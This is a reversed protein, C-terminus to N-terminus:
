EGNVFVIKAVHTSPDTFGSYLSNAATFVLYVGSASKRGTYDRGDWRAQGGLAKTEYVLRGNVDTIKVTADRPLGKIFVYGDYDPRVPNPYVEVESKHVTGGETADSQFSVIGKSTAIFVEGSEHDIAIDIINNDPLESNDKTFTYVKDKGDDSMLYLNSNTGVWKRNADDVAITQVSETELLYAGFGDDGVVIRRTGQCDSSFVDSGCEFIVVGDTTGVWVDGDLDVALSLVDNTSLESNISTIFRCQDDNPDDMDGENFVLVGATAENVIAWKNGAEDIIMKTIFDSATCDLDFTQWTMDPKFVSIPNPSSTNAVWLNGQEDFALGGVRTDNLSGPDNGLTSNQDDYLTTNGEQDMMILGALYSGAYVTGNTEDVAVAIVDFVDDDRENNSPDRGKFVTNTHRNYAEWQGDIMSFVGHDLFTPSFAASMAGSAVWLQRNWVTMEWANESWPSNYSIGLCDGDTVSNIYDFDAWNNGFWVRGQDDEEAITMAGTCDLTVMGSNESEDYYYLKGFVCEGDDICEFGVLLHPGEATIFQIEYFDEAEQVLEAEDGDFRYLDGDLGVYLNNNYVAIAKASYSGPFGYSDGMFEWNALVEPFVHDKNIRLLGENTTMYLYEGYEAAGYVPADTFTSFMFQRDLINVKSLGYSGSLYIISDNQVAIHNINKGVIANDFNKLQTMTNVGDEQWLDILGSDYIIVLIESGDVYKMIQIGADSLGEPKSIYRPSLEEKDLQLVSIGNSYYAHTNSQTVWRGQKYPFHTRWRGFAMANQAMLDAVGITAILFLILLIKQKM